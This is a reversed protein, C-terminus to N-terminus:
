LAIRETFQSSRACLRILIIASCPPPRAAKLYRDPNGSIDGGAVLDLEDRRTVMQRLCPIQTIGLDRLAYARHSGNVLVLRNEVHLVSLLNAGYGVALGLIAVPRGTSKFNPIDNPQLLEAETFRFDNSPSVFTYMNQGSQMRQVQPSEPQLPLPFRFIADPSPAPGLRRKLEEVFSLNIFKQFVVVRNLDIVVVDVPVFRYARRYVASAMVERSLPGLDDALSEIPPNDATGAETRELDLVHDNAARWERTLDGPDINQGGVAMTRIFALLEGIPPRGILFVHSDAALAIGAPNRM